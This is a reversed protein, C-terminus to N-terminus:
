YQKIKFFHLTRTKIGVRGALINKGNRAHEFNVVRGNRGVEVLCCLEVM